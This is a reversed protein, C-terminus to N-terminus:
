PAIPIGNEFEISGPLEISESDAELLVLGKCSVSGKARCTGTRLQRIKADRIKLIMGDMDFEVSIDLEIKLVSSGNVLIELYPHHESEIKHTTLEIYVEDEPRYQDPNLYKKLIGAENWAKILTESIRIDLLDWVAKSIDGLAGPLAALAGQLLGFLQKMQASGLLETFRKELGRSGSPSLLMQFNDASM